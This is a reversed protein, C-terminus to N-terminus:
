DVSMAANWGRLCKRALNNALGKSARRNPRPDLSINNHTDIHAYRIRQVSFDDPDPNYFSTGNRNVKM